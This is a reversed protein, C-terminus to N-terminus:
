YCGVIRLKRLDFGVEFSMLLLLFGILYGNTHVIWMRANNSHILGGNFRGRRSMNFNGSVTECSASSVGDEGPGWVV